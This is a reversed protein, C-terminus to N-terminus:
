VNQRTGKLKKRLEAIVADKAENDRRLQENEEELPAANGQQEELQKLQQSLTKVKATKNRLETKCKKLTAELKEVAKTDVKGKKAKKKPPAKKTSAQPEEDDSSGAEANKEASTLARQSRRPREATESEDDADDNSVAAAKRKRPKPKAAKAQQDSFLFLTEEGPHFYPEELLDRKDENRDFCSPFLKLERDPNKDDPLIRRWEPRFENLDADYLCKVVSQVKSDRVYQVVDNYLSDVAKTLVAKKKHFKELHVTYYMKAATHLWANFNDRHVNGHQEESWALGTKTPMLPLKGDVDDVIMTLGQCFDSGQNVLGLKGRADEQFEILRGSRRSHIHLNLATKEKKENVRLPDFGMYINLPYGDEHWTEDDLEAIPRENNVYVTIKSLEVLRYLWYSFTVPELQDKEHVDIFFEFNVQPVHIYHRPLLAKIQEIFIAAPDRGKSRTSRDIAELDIGDIEPKIKVAVDNGKPGHLLDPIVLAFVHPEEAWVNSRILLTAYELLNGMGQEANGRGLDEKVVEMLKPNANIVEEVKMTVEQNKSDEDTSEVRFSFSPLCVGGETQLRKALIGISIETHNRTLVLSCHSLAACGHKLGIGNEGIADEKSNEGQNKTSGYVVLIEDALNPIPKYSNNILLLGNTGVEHLHVKGNHDPHLAADMANDVLDLFAEHPTTFVRLWSDWQRIGNTRTVKPMKYSGPETDIEPQTVEPLNDAEPEPPRNYVVVSQNANQVKKHPNSAKRKKKEASALNEEPSPNGAAKRSAVGAGNEVAPRKREAEPIDKFRFHEVGSAVEEPRASAINEQTELTEEESVEIDKDENTSPEMAMASAVFSPEAKIEQQKNQQDNDGHSKPLLIVQLDEDESDSSLCVPSERSM